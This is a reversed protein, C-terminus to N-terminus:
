PTVTIAITVTLNTPANPVTPACVENTPASETTGEPAVEVAVLRFCAANAPVVVTATLANAATALLPTASPIFGKAGNFLKGALSRTIPSGDTHTTSWVWSLKVTQPVTQAYSVSALLGVCALFIFRKM